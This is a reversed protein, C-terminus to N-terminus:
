IEGEWLFPNEPNLWAQNLRALTEEKSPKEKNRKEQKAKIDDRTDLPSNTSFDEGGEHELDKYPM